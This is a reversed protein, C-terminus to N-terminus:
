AQNNRHPLRTTHRVPIPQPRPAQQRLSYVLLSAACAFSPLFIGAIIVENFFTYLVEM